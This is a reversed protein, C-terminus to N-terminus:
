HLKEVWGQVSRFVGAAGALGGLLLVVKMGGSARAITDAMDQQQQRIETLLQLVSATREELRAVREELGSPDM